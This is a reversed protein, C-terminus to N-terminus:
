LFQQQLVATERSYEKKTEGSDPVPWPEEERRKMKKWPKSCLHGTFRMRGTRHEGSLVGEQLRRPLTSHLIEKKHTLDLLVLEKEPNEKGRNQVDNRYDEAM